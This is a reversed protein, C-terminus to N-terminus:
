VAICSGHPTSASVSPGLRRRKPPPSIAAAPAAIKPRAGANAHATIPRVSTPNPVATANTAASLSIAVHNSSRRKAVSVPTTTSAPLREEAAAPPGNAHTSCASGQRVTISASAASDSATASPASKKTRSAGGPWAPTRRAEPSQRLPSAATTAFRALQGPKKAFRPM